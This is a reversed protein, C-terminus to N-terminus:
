HQHVVLRVLAGRAFRVAGALRTRGALVVALLLLLVGHLYVLLALALPLLLPLPRRSRFLCRCALSRARPHPLRATRGLLVWVARVRNSDLASIETVM